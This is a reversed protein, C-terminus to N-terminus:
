FLVVEIKSEIVMFKKIRIDVHYSYVYVDFSIICQWVMYQIQKFNGDHLKLMVFNWGNGSM